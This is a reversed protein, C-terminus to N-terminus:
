WFVNGFMCISANPIQKSKNLYQVMSDGAMNYLGQMVHM